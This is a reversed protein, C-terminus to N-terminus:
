LGIDNYVNQMLFQGKETNNYLTPLLGQKFSSM